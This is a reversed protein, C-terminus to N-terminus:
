GSGGSTKRTLRAIMDAIADPSLVHTAAGINIAEGPMGHVISSSEDQAITLAGLDKLDRLEKAGDKGMGTLLVGLTHPGFVQGVSQFLYAVSPKLGNETTQNSLAIHQDRSVGMQFRDPAVYAHGHLPQQGHEAIHLPFKSASALWDVFGNVFGPSIHQVILIPAPLDPPLQSFIKNLAPPGGTSAGIAVIEIKKDAVPKIKLPHLEKSRTKRRVVKIESMMKVTKLMEEVAASHEPHGIGPPRLVVALAGVELARFTSATDTATTSASVIVIPTPTDEMIARTTEFGDLLPMHIDMTIVDPCKEKVGALAETGNNAIGVVEIAPDSSFIHTLFEQAVQSDDVIFVKIM